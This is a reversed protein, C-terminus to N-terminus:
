VTWQIAEYAARAAAADSADGIAKKGQLRTSEIVHSLAAFQEYKQMVLEAAAYLSAAEVPVSASLTPFEAAGHSALANAAADGMAIVAVAQDKKEQYTMAMGAGPTIYKLRVTEAAEDLRRTLEAKIEEIPRESRVIRVQDAEVVTQSLPGSGEIVVPRWLYAKHPPISDIFRRELVKDNEVRAYEPM